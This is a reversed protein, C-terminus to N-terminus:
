PVLGLAQLRGTLAAVVEPVNAGRAADEVVVTRRGCGRHMAARAWGDAAVLRLTWGHAAALAALHEVAGCDAWAAARTARAPAPSAGTSGPSPGDFQASSAPAHLESHQLDRTTM